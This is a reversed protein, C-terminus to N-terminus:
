IERIFVFKKHMEEYYVRGINRITAADETSLIETLVRRGMVEPMLVLTAGARYLKKGM